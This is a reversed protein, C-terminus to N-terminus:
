EVINFEVISLTTQMDWSFTNGFKTIVELNHTGSNLWIPCQKEFIAPENSGYTNSNYIDFIVGKNLIVSFGNRLNVDYNLGSGQTTGCHFSQIKWLKGEPVTFTTDTVNYDDYNSQNNFHDYSRILKIDFFQNIELNVSQSFGFFPTTFFLCLFITRFIM